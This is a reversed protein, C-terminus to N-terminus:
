ELPKHPQVQSQAQVVVNVRCGVFLCKIKHTESFTDRQCTIHPIHIAIESNWASECKYCMHGKITFEKTVLLFFSMM